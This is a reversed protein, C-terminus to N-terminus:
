PSEPQTCPKVIATASKPVITPASTQPLGASFYPLSSDSFTTAYKYKREATPQATTKFQHVSTNKRKIPPSATPAEDTTPGIYMASIAGDFQRPLNTANKWNLMTKPSTLAYMEFQYMLVSPM